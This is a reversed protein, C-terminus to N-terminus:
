KGVFALSLGRALSACVGRRTMAGLEQDMDCGLQARAALATTGSFVRQIEEASAQGARNAYPVVVMVQPGSAQAADTARGINPLTVAAPPRENLFGSDISANQVVVLLLARRPPNWLHFFPHNSGSTPTSIGRCLILSFCWLEDLHNIQNFVRPQCTQQM